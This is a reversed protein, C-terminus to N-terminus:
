ELFVSSTIENKSLSCFFPAMVISEFPLIFWTMLRLRARNGLATLSVFALVARAVHFYEWRDRLETWSVPRSPATKAAFSFFGSGVRSLKEDQFVYPRMEGRRNGSGM